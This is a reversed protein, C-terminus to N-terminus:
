SERKFFLALQKEIPEKRLYCYKTYSKFYLVLQQVLLRHQEVM